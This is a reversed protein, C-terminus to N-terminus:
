PDIRLVKRVWRVMKQLLKRATQVASNKTPQDGADDCVRIGSRRISSKNKMVCVIFPATWVREITAALTTGNNIPYMYKNSYDLYEFLPGEISWSVKYFDSGLTMDYSNPNLQAENFPEIGIWGLKMFLKIFPSSLIM